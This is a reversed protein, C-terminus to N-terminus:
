SLNGTHHRPAAHINHYTVQTTGRHQMSLMIRKQEITRDRLPAKKEETLNMDEQYFIFLFRM